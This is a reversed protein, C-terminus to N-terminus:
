SSEDVTHCVKARGAANYGTCVAASMMIALSETMINEQKM